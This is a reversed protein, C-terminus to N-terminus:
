RSQFFRVFKKFGNIGSSLAKMRWVTTNMEELSCKWMNRNWLVSMQDSVSGTVQLGPRQKGGQTSSISDAWRQSGNLTILPTVFVRFGLQHAQEIGEQFARPTPPDVRIQVQTAQPGPMHLPFTMAIWRADLHKM